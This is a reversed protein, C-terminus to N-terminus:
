DRLEHGSLKLFVDELSARRHYFDEGQIVPYCERLDQGDRAFFFVTDGARESKLHFRSLKKIIGAIRESDVHLELVEKGVHEQVLDDPSGMTLIRGHDMIVLRDCLREAEEMYHTTLILTAGKEKLQRLRQWISHRGQPDLGTTPEDLVLLKPENILSRAILLRRKMGGSLHEIKENQKDVLQVFELLKLGRNMSVKRPLDFYRGFVMLNELVKLDPDLNEEQPVVGIQSKIGAAHSQPDLGLVQLDGGSRPSICYIMKMTTTKGAGNPGLFGFCEGKHIEFSIEDVAVISGFAKRLNQASILITSPM